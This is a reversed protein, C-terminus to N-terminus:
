DRRRNLGSMPSILTVRSGANSGSKIELRGGQQRLREQISFLGFGGRKLQPDKKSAEFGIGDDEIVIRINDGEKATSVVAKKAQSHKVVNFLLERVAQFLLIRLSEDIPKDSMDDVFAVPIGHQKQTQEALWDLAAELGLDYLVPPSLEFTLSQTDQISQDILAHIEDLRAPGSLTKQDQLLRLKMAATTLTHGIRDHIDQAIRRREREETLSLESSLRRLQAQYRLAEEEREASVKRLRRESQIVNKYLRANELSVAAQSALLRLVEIREPTFVGPTIDNELYLLAVLRAHHIVPLCLISRSGHKKVYAHNIFDGERAADDLVIYGGTRKVYNLAPLFADVRGDTPLAKHLRAGPREVDIEAELYIREKQLTFLQAKRAGANELVIGMLKKLLEDLVIETSIMRLSNMIADFDIHKVGQLSPPKFNAPALGSFAQTIGVVKAAAGWRRYGERAQDLYGRAIEDFGKQAYFRAAAENAIAHEQILRNDRASLIAQHYLGMARGDKGSIRAAEAAVLLYKDMFNEPCLVSLRKLRGRFFGIKRSYAAQRLPSVASWAAALALAHYFYYEPILLTGMHYIKLAACRRAASLAGQYDEMIYLLRLKILYHRFLIIRIDDKRMREIHEAERFYDDDLSCPDHTRGQLCNVFQRVSILYNLAGTDKSREVFGLYRDCAGAIEDLPMGGATMFILLMQIHYVAYNLDGTELACRIGQRTHGIGQHMHHNWVNIASAYYLLVKATMGADGFRRNAKLALDGFRFGAQYDKFIACLASGYIVYAFPSVRSNGWELTLTFIQLALYTAFYPRCFYASLSLNMLMELILLRRPDKTEPLTLLSDIGKRYLRMKLGALRKLVAPIGADPALSIGLLKLGSLGISLAEEHKALSALMIMKQNYIEAKDQDSVARECIVRFLGEASDFNHCLYECAMQCKKIEFMLDYDNQWADAPLLKEGIRLYDLAQRYAASNKAKEGAMMNLQAVQRRTGLRTLLRRGLNLHSVITFIRNQLAEQDLNAYLLNGIKLHLAQKQRAPVLAYVAQRVKDHLFEFSHSNARGAPPGNQLGSATQLGPSPLLPARGSVIFGLAIPERLDDQIEVVPKGSLRSIFDLDFRNGICAALMLTRRANDTLKLVKAAMYDVVNGTIAAARIGATDWQWRGNEYDYSLLGGRIISRLFQRVFFPNGGTKECVMGALLNLDGMPASLADRLLHLAAIDNIPKLTLPHIRIGKQKLTNLSARLPHHPGIANDRYVGIFYFYRTRTGVFFAEMMRLGASDAWQMDDIFLVLPHGEVAFVRLFREFILRFRNQVESPTIGALSPQKGIILELDPIVETLLRANAGLRSAIKQRWKEIRDAPETLIQQILEAFAQLLGSYPIDQQFQDYRGSIFRGGKRLVYKKLENVLRTKGIGSYGSLMTIGLGGRRVREYEDILMAMEIDRGYVRDPMRFVPSIDREALEFPPVRGEASLRKMCHTLDFELGYASQYRDKPSKSLLKMVLDSLTKGIDPRIAAPPVPNKAMHAHITEVPTNGTFPTFGTLVEYFIVGLSYFDTRHDVRRNMRGTQEPSIYFVSDAGSPDSEADVGVFAESERGDAAQFTFDHIRARGTAPDIIVSGSTLRQHIIGLKHLHKVGSVLDVAIRLFGDVPIPEKERIYAKLTIGRAEEVIVAIGPSASAEMKKVAHVRALNESSLKALSSYRRYLAEMRPFPTNNVPLLYIVVPSASATDVASFRKVGHRPPKEGIIRYGDLLPIRNM